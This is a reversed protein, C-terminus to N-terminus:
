PLRKVRLNRYHVESGPDHAQLAFTGESLRRTGTVGEPEVFEYLVTDDVKVGVAKGNVVVEMTFWTDDKAPRTFTKVVNYLSGTRVPDQQSNNVQVEYGRAPWGDPQFATHIFIGSNAVPKTLVEAKLHFNRFRAPAAPDAGVYFLHSRPGKCVIAGDRVSWSGANENAQWGALSTGDFLSTFGEEAAGAGAGALVALGIAAGGIARRVVPRMREYIM